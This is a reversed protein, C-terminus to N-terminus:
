EDEVGELPPLRVVVPAVQREVDFWPAAMSRIAMTPSSRQRLSDSINALASRRFAGTSNKRRLLEGARASATPRFSGWDLVLIFCALGAIRYARSAARVRRIPGATGSTAAAM